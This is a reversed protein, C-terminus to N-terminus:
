LARLRPGASKGLMLHHIAWVLADARDPSHGPQDTGLAMMEEELRDFTGCHTVRGQEYLGAVPEARMTKSLRAHVPKVSARCGAIRLMEAIMEGGQNTEAVVWDAAHTEVTRAVAGAWQMPSKREVSADALVYARGEARGVVVIGCADGHSTVPPDLGIVVTDFRDPRQGRSRALMELTWLGGVDDLILGEVEQAELRTEGYRSRLGALFGRSLNHANENTAARTTVTTAEAIVAKLAASPKPTTTMMLRPADGLRLGLRLMALTEAPKAWACFEDAWAGHFQPGRLSEPDEASFTTATAGNLWELRRRSPHFTPRRHKPAIARLGSPGEIMVERVDHLTPGVLALHTGKLAQRSLWEAGARTKGAGRGGLFLWTTWDQQPGETQPVTQAPGSWSKWDDGISILDGAAQARLLAPRSWAPQSLMSGASSPPEFVSKLWSTWRDM